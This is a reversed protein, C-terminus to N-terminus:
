VTNCINSYAGFFPRYRMKSCSDVCQQPIFGFLHPCVFGLQQSYRSPHQCFLSNAVGDQKCLLRADNDCEMPEWQEITKSIKWTSSLLLIFALLCLMVSDSVLLCLLWSHGSSTCDCFNIRVDSQNKCCSGCPADVESKFHIYWPM